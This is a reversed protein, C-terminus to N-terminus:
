KLRGFLIFLYGIGILIGFGIATNIPSIIYLDSFKYIINFISYVCPVSIWIIPDYLKYSKKSDFLILDIIMMAPALIYQINHIVASNDYDKIIFIQILLLASIGITFLAKLRLFLSDSRINSFLDCIVLVFICLLCAFNTIQAYDKLLYLFDAIKLDSLKYFSYVELAIFAIRFLIKFIENISKKGNSSLMNNFLYMLLGAGLVKPVYTLLDSFDYNLSAFLDKIGLFKDLLFPIGFLLLILCVNWILLDRINNLKSSFLLWDAIMMVPLLIKLIWQIQIGNFLIKFNLIIIFYALLTCVGRLHFLWNYSRKRLSEWFTLATCVIFLFDSFVTLNKLTQPFFLINFSINEFLAWIGFFLFAVRYLMSVTKKM